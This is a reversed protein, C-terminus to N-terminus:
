GRKIIMNAEYILPWKDQIICGKGLNVSKIPMKGEIILQCSTTKDEHKTLYKCNGKKNKDKRRGKGCLSLECCLGCRNCPKM